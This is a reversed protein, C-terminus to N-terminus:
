SVARRLWPRANFLDTRSRIGRSVASWDAASSIERGADAMAEQRAEHDVCWWVAAWLVARWKEPDEDDLECWAPTGPILGPQGLIPSILEYVTLYAIQRSGISTM